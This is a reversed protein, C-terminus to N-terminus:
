GAGGSEPAAPRPDKTILFAKGCGENPCHLVDGWAHRPPPVELLEAGDPVTCHEICDLQGSQPQPGSM